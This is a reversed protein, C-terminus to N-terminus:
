NAASIADILEEHAHDTIRFGSPIGRDLDAVGHCIDLYECRYPMQCTSTNRYHRGTLEGQRMTKQVQWLEHLFEDIDSAVRPVEQRAYYFNPREGIDGVLRKGYEELSEGGSVKKPRIMPKRIVDYEITQVNYGLERAAWFYLSIQSDIRLRKWYDSTPDVSEGTTKHERIAARGDALRVIKDIKGSIQYTTTKAGTDPNHIPLVFVQETAIIEADDSKWRWDYGVLMSCVKTCELQLDHRLTDTNAWTPPSDYRERIATVVDQISAGQALLDLGIHVSSGFRLADSEREKRLGMLYHFQHKRPCTKWCAMRSHTLVDLGEIM